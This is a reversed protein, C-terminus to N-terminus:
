PRKKQEKGSTLGMVWVVAKGSDALRAIEVGATGLDVFSFRGESGRAFCNNSFNLTTRNVKIPASSLCIKDTGFETVEVLSPDFIVGTGTQGYHLTKRGDSYFLAFGLPYTSELGSRQVYDEVKKSNSTNKNELLRRLAEPTLNINVNDAQIITSGPSESVTQQKHGPVSKTAQTGKKVTEKKENIPPSVSLVKRVEANYTKVRKAKESETLAKDDRLASCYTAYMMQELYIRDAKPLKGLLDRTANNTKISLDGGKARGIKAVASNVEVGWDKRYQDPQTPCEIAGIPSACAVTILGLVVILGLKTKLNGGINM